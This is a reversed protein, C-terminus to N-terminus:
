NIKQPCLILVDLLESSGERATLDDRSAILNLNLALRGFNRLDM